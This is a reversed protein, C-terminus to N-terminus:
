SRLTNPRLLYVAEEGTFSDLTEARVHATDTGAQACDVTGQTAYNNATVVRTHGGDATDSGPHNVIILDGPRAVKLLADIQAQAQDPTMKGPWVEGLKTLPANPGMSYNPIEIAIPYSGGPYTPPKAGGAYLSDLGFLNCKWHNTAGLPTTGPNKNGPINPNPSKWTGAVGYDPGRKAILDLAAQAIKAGDPRPKSVTVNGVDPPPLTYLAEEMAMATNQDISGTVPLGNNKQFASVADRTQGGYSGDAGSALAYEPHGGRSALADLTEQYLKVAADGSPTSTSLSRQGSLVAASAADDGLSRIPAGITITQGVSKGLNVLPKGVGAQFLDGFRDALLKLESPQVQGAQVAAKLQTMEDASLKGDSLLKRVTPSISPM